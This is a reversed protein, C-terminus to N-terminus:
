RLVRRRHLTQEHQPARRRRWKAAVFPFPSLIEEHREGSRSIERRDGRSRPLRVPRPYRLKAARHSPGCAFHRHGQRVRFPQYGHARSRPQRNRCDRDRASHREHEAVQEARKSLARHLLFLLQQLRGTDQRLAAHAHHAYRPVGRVKGRYRFRFHRDQRFLRRRQRRVEQCAGGRPRAKGEHRLHVESRRPRVPQFQEAFRLRLRIDGCRSKDQSHAHGGSPIQAGGGRHRRLHQDRLRGRSGARRM